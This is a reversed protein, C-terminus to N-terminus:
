GARRRRAMLYTAALLAAVLAAAVPVLAGPGGQERRAAATDATDAEPTGPGSSAPGPPAARGALRERMPPVRGSGDQFRLGVYAGAAPELADLGVTAYTWPEGARAAVFLGWYADAPPTRLCDEDAPGPRDDVRCVFGPQSVVGTLDFGTATVADAGSGPVHVACAVRAGGGLPGFDVVVTVGTRPPCAGDRGTSPTAAAPEAFGLLAWGLLALLALRRPAPIRSM